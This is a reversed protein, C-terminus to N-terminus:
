DPILDDAGEPTTTGDSKGHMLAESIGVANNAVAVTQDHLKNSRKNTARSMTLIDGGVTNGDSRTSVM